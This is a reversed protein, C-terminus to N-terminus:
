KGGKGPTYYDSVKYYNDFKGIENKELLLITYYQSHKTIEYPVYVGNSVYGTKTKSTDGDKSVMYFYDYGNNSVFAATNYMCSDKVFNYDAYGNGGCFIHFLKGKLHEYGAGLYENTKIPEVDFGAKPTACGSLVLILFCFLLKKMIYDKMFFCKKHNYDTRILFDFELILALQIRFDSFPQSGPKKIQTTRYDRIISWNKSNM